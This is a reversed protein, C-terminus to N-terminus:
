PVTGSVVGRTPVHGTPSSFFRFLVPERAPMVQAKSFAVAKHKRRAHQQQCLKLYDGKMAVSVGVGFMGHVDCM